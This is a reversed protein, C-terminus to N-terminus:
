IQQFVGQRGEEKPFSKTMEFIKMALAFSKKYALLDQFKVQILNYIIRLGFVLRQVSGVSCQFSFVAEQESGV